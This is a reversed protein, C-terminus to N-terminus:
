ICPCSATTTSSMAPLWTGCSLRAINALLLHVTGHFAQAIRSLPAKSVTAPVLELAILRRLVRARRSAMHVSVGLALGTVLPTFGEPFDAHSSLVVDPVAAVKVRVGLAM